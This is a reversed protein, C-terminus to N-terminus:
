ILWPLPKRQKHHKGVCAQLSVSANIKQFNRNNFDNHWTVSNIWKDKKFKKNTETWQAVAKGFLANETNENAGYWYRQRWNEVNLQGTCCFWNTAWDIVQDLPRLLAPVTSRCFLHWAIFVLHAPMVIANSGSAAHCLGPPSKRRELWADFHSNAPCYSSLIRLMNADNGYPSVTVQHLLALHSQKPVSSGHLLWFPNDPSRSQGVLGDASLHIVCPSLSFFSRTM